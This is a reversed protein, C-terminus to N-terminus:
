YVRNLANKYFQDATCHLDDIVQQELTKQLNGGKHYKDDNFLLRKTIRTNPQRALHALYKKQQKKIFETVEKAKCIRLVDNNSLKYRFEVEVAEQEENDPQPEKETEIVDSIKKGIKSKTKKAMYKGDKRIFGNKLMKRLMSTYCSNLRDKQRKNINWTQCSYTLRSRVLSNLILVRTQLNIKFNTIKSKLQSFKSEAASIRLNIEQDGTAPENFKISEYEEYVRLYGPLTHPKMNLSKKGTTQCV